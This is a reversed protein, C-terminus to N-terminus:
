RAAATATPDWHKLQGQDTVYDVGGSSDAALAVTNVGFLTPGSSGGDGHVDGPAYYYIGDGLGAQQGAASPQSVAVYLGGDDATAVAVPRGAVGLRWGEAVSVGALLNKPALAILRDGDYAWLDDGTSDAGTPGYIDGTWDVTAGKTMGWKTPILEVLKNSGSQVWLHGQQSAAIEGAKVVGVSNTVSGGILTMREIQDGQTVYLSDGVTAADGYSGSDITSTTFDGTSTDVGTVRTSGVVWVVRDGAYLRQAPGKVDFSQGPSDGPQGISYRDSGHGILVWPQQGPAASVDVVPPLTFRSVQVRNPAGNGDSLVAIPVVVAAIVVAAAVGAGAALWRRAKRVRRDLAALPDTTSTSTPTEALAQRVLEEM